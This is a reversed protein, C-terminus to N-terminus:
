FPPNEDGATTGWAHGQTRAPAQGGPSTTGAWGGQQSPPTPVTYLERAQLEVRSHRQGGNDEWQRTVLRGTVAVKQGKKLGAALKAWEVPNQKHQPSEDWITVDLYLSQRTQWNGQEDKYRDSQALTFNTVAQGTKTFRLEPDRVLGGTFTHIEIM